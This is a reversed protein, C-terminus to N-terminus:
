MNDIHVTPGFGEREALNKSFEDLLSVRIADPWFMVHGIMESFRRQRRLTGRSRRRPPTDMTEWGVITEHM